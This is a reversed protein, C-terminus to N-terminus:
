QEEFIIKELTETKTNFITLGSLYKDKYLGGCIAFEFSNMRTTIPHERPALDVTSNINIQRWGNQIQLTNLAEISNTLDRKDKRGVLGCVVYVTDQVICSGHLRRGQNM